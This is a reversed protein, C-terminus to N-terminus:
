LINSKLSTQDNSPFLGEHPTANPIELQRFDAIGWSTGLM